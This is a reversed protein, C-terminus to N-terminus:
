GQFISFDFGNVYARFNGDLPIEQTSTIGKSCYKEWNAILEQKLKAPSKLLSNLKTGIGCAAMFAYSHPTKYEGSVSFWLVKGL